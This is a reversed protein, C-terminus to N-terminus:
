DLTPDKCSKEPMENSGGGRRIRIAKQFFINNPIRVIDVTSTAKDGKEITTFFLDIDVVRGRLGENGTPELVELDDGIRFFRNFIILLSSTINSLVSWVAVFGIAVLTASATIVSLFWGTSMGAAQLLLLIAIPLLVIKLWRLMVPQVRAQEPHRRLMRGVGKAMLSYALWILLLTALILLVRVLLTVQGASLPIWNAIWEVLLPTEDATPQLQLLPFM